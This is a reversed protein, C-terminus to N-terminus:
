RPSILPGLQFDGELTRFIGDGAPESERVRGSDIIGVKVLRFAALPSAQLLGSVCDLFLCRALLGFLSLRSLQHRCKLNRVTGRM